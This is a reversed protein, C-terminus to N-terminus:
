NNPRIERVLIDKDLPADKPHNHCRNCDSIPFGVKDHCRGCWKGKGIGVMDVQVMGVKEDFIAGGKTEHCIKCQLWYSHVDHPFLVDSVFESKTKFLIRTSRTRKESIDANPDLSWAPAVKKERVAEAWDVLGYKDLPLGSESLAKPHWGSALKILNSYPKAKNGIKIDLAREKLTRGTEEGGRRSHQIPGGSWGPELSHCRDCELPEWAVLGNHCKGCQEGGESIRAMNIDNGGARLIFIDEHCVNCRYRIRHFWHPFVVDGVDAKRMADAKSNLIIDGYEALTVTSFLILVVLLLYSLSSQRGRKSFMVNSDVLGPYFVRVVAHTVYRLLFSFCCTKGGSNKVQAPPM